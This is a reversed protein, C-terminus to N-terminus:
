SFEYMPFYAIGNQFLHPFSHYISSVYKKLKFKVNFFYYLVFFMM